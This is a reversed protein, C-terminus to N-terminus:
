RLYRYAAVGGVGLAGLVAWGVLDAGRYRDSWGMMREIHDIRVPGTYTSRYAAWTPSPGLADIKPRVANWGANNAAMMFFLQDRSSARPYRTKVRSLQLRLLKAALCVNVRPDWLDDQSVGHAEAVHPMVQLLGRAGRSSEADPRLNAAGKSMGALTWWAIGPVSLACPRFASWEYAVPSLLSM